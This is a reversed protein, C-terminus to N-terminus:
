PEIEGLQFVEHPEVSAVVYPSHTTAIFQVRPFLKQLGRVIQTQWRPHLHADIEDILCVAPQDLAAYPDETALSLRLVLEAVIVFVSRFGDSLSALSVSGTPTRFRAQLAEDIGEFRVPALLADLGEILMDWLPYAEGRDAKARARLHDLNVIWQELQAFRFWLARDRKVSPALANARPNTTVLRADVADVELPPLLRHADLAVVLGTPHASTQDHLRDVWDIVDPSVNSEPKPVGPKMPYRAGLVLQVSKDGVVDEASLQVSAERAGDRVDRVTFEPGGYHGWRSTLLTTIATLASSKGSGNPGVFLAVPLPAGDPHRLDFEAREFGRYNELVLRSIQM